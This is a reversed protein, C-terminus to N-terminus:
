NYGPCILFGDEICSFPVNSCHTGTLTNKCKFSISKPRPEPKTKATVNKVIQPSRTNKLECTVLGAEIFNKDSANPTLRYKGILDSWKSIYECFYKNNKPVWFAPGKAGKSQNESDDVLLLNEIDNAFEEKIKPIWQSGGHDNAWKLPIVHDVDLDSAETFYKDIYPGHWRGTLVICERENKFIVPDLSQALLLEHRTNQCDRDIDIWHKWDSRNYEAFATTSITIIFATIIIYRM